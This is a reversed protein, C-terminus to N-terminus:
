AAQAIQPRSQQALLTENKAVQTIMKVEGNALQTLNLTSGVLQELFCMYEGQLTAIAQDTSPESSAGIADKLAARKEVFEDLLGRLDKLASDLIITQRSSNARGKQALEELIGPM